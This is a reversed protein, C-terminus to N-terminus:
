CVPGGLYHGSEDLCYLDGATVWGEIEGAPKDLKILFSGDNTDLVTCPIGRGSNPDTYYFSIEGAASVRIMGSSYVMTLASRLM